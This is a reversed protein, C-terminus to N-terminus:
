TKLLGLAGLMILTVMQSLGVTMVVYLPVNFLLHAALNGVISGLIFTVM